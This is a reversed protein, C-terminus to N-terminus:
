PNEVFVDSLSETYGSVDHTTINDDYTGVPDTNGVVGYAWAWGIGRVNGNMGFTPAFTSTQQYVSCFVVLNPSSTYRYLLCFEWYHYTTGSVVFTGIYLVNEWQQRDHNWTCLRPSGSAFHEVSPNATDRLSAVFRLNYSYQYKAYM